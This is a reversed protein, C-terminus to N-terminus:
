LTSRRLNASSSKLSALSVSSANMSRPHARRTLVHSVGHAAPRVDPRAQLLAAEVPAFDGYCLNASEKRRDPSCFACLQSLSRLM